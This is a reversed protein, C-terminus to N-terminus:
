INWTSYFFSCSEKWGVAHVNLRGQLKALPPGVKYPGVPQLVLSVARHSSLISNEEIVFCNEGVSLYHFVWIQFCMWTPIKRLYIPRWLPTLVIISRMCLNMKMHFLPSSYNEFFVSMRLYYFKYGDPELKFFYINSRPTHLFWCWNSGFVIAM